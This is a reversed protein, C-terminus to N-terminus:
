CVFPVEALTFLSNIRQNYAGEEGLLRQPAFKWQPPKPLPSTRKRIGELRGGTGFECNVWYFVSRFGGFARRNGESQSMGLLM